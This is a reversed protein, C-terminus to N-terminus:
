KDELPHIEPTSFGAKDCAKVYKTLRELESLLKEVYVRNSYYFECDHTQNCNKCKRMKVINM